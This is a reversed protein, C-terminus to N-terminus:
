LQRAFLQASVELVNTTPFKHELQKSLDFEPNEVM